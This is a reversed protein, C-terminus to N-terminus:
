NIQKASPNPNNKYYGQGWERGKKDVNLLRIYYAYEIYEGDCLCRGLAYESNIYQVLFKDRSLYTM